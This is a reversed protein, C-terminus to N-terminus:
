RPWMAALEDLGTAEIVTVGPILLPDSEDPDRIWVCVVKDFRRRASAAATLAWRAGSILVLTGGTGTRRLTKATDEAEQAREVLALRDLVLEADENGGRVDLPKDWGAFLRVPFRDRAASWAVSAAADVAMEFDDDGSYSDRRTDLVITTYPLNVDILEKVMLVGTRATSRWHVHRLDDGVVYERVANFSTAGRPASRSTLGDLHRRRGSAQPELIM